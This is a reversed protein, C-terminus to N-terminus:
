RCISPYFVIIVIFIFYAFIRGSLGSGLPVVDMCIRVACVMDFFFLCVLLLLLLEEANWKDNNFNWSRFM